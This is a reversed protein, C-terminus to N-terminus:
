LVDDVSRGDLEVESSRRGTRTQSQPQPPPPVTSSSSALVREEGLAVRGRSVMAIKGRFWGGVLRLVGWLREEREVTGPDGEGGPNEHGVDVTFQFKLCDKVTVL